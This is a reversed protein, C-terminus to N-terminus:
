LAVEAIVAITIAENVLLKMNMLVRLVPPVLTSITSLAQHEPSSIQLGILAESSAIRVAIRPCLGVLYIPARM